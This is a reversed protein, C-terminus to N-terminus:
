MCKCLTNQLIHTRNYSDDVKYHLAQLAVAHQTHTLPDDVNNYESGNRTNRLPVGTQGNIKENLM